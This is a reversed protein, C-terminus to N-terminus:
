GLDEFIERHQRNSEAGAVRTGAHKAQASPTLNLRCVTILCTAVARDTRGRFRLTDLKVGM